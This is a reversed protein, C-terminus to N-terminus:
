PRRRRRSEAVVHSPWVGCNTLGSAVVCHAGVLSRSASSGLDGKLSRCPRGDCASFFGKNAFKGNM